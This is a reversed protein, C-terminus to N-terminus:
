RSPSAARTDPPISIGTKKGAVGKGSSEPFYRQMVQKGLGLKRTNLIDAIAQRNHIGIMAPAFLAGTTLDIHIQTVPSRAGTLDPLSEEFSLILTGVKGDAKAKEIAKQIKKKHEETLKNESYSLVVSDHGGENYHSEDFHLDQGATIDAIDVMGAANVLAPLSLSYAIIGTFILKKM